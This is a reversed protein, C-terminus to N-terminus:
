LVMIEHMIGSVVFSMTMGVLRRSKSRAVSVTPDHILRGASLHRWLPVPRYCALWPTSARYVLGRAGECHHVIHPHQMAMARM